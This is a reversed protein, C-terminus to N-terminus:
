KYKRVLRNTLLQHRDRVPPHRNLGQNIGAKGVPAIALPEVHQTHGQWIVGTFAVVANRPGIGDGRHPHRNQGGAVLQVVLKRHEILVRHDDAGLVPALGGVVGVVFVQQHNPIRRHGGM